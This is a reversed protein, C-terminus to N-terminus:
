WETIQAQKLPCAMTSIDAHAVGCHVLCDRMSAMGNYSPCNRGDCIGMFNDPIM